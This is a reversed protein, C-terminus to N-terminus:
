TMLFRSCIENAATASNAKQYIALDAYNERDIEDKIRADFLSRTRSGRNDYIEGRAPELPFAFGSALHAVVQSLADTRLVLDFRDAVGLARMTLSMETKPLFSPFIRCLHRSQWNMTTKAYYESFNQAPPLCLHQFIFASEWWESPRRVITVKFIRKDPLWDFFREHIGHGCLVSCSYLKRELESTMTPQASHFRLFREGQGYYELLSELFRFFYNGGTKPIHHFFIIDEEFFRKAMQNM